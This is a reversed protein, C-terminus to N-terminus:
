YSGTLDRIKTNFMVEVKAHFDYWDLLTPM